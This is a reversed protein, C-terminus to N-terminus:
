LSMLGAWCSRWYLFSVAVCRAVRSEVSRCRGLQADQPGHLCGADHVARTVSSTRSPGPRCDPRTWITRCTKQFVHSTVWAFGATGRATRLDRSTNSPDRWGGLTDPFVPGGGSSAARRRHLMDLAFQPLPLTRDDGGKLRRVHRLGEGKIRILM